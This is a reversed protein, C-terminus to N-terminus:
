KQRKKKEKKIFVTQEKFKNYLENKILIVNDMQSLLDNTIKKM